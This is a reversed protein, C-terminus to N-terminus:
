IVCSLHSLLEHQCKCILLRKRNLNLYFILVIIYVTSVNFYPMAEVIYVKVLSFNFVCSSCSNIINGETRSCNCLVISSFLWNIAFFRKLAKTVM